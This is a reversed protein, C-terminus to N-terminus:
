LSHHLSFLSPEEGRKPSQPQQDKSPAYYLELPKRVKWYKENVLELTLSGNLTQPLSFSLFTVWLYLDFCHILIFTSCSIFLVSSPDM